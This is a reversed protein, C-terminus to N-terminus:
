VLQLANDELVIVDRWRARRQAQVCRKWPRDPVHKIYRALHLGKGNGLDNIAVEQPSLPLCILPWKKGYAISGWVMLSTRGSRFIPRIHKAEYEEGAWRITYHRTIDEGIQVLCKDAFIARRWDQDVNVAAWTRRTAMLKESPFPKKRYIRKHVGMRAAERQITSESVSLAKALYGWPSQLFLRIERSLRRLFRKSLKRLRRGTPSSRQTNNVQEREMTYAITGKAVQYKQAIEKYTKRDLVHAIIKGRNCPSLLLAM